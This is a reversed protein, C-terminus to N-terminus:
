KNATKPILKIIGDILIKYAITKTDWFCTIMELVDKGIFHWCARLVELTIGNSDSSHDVRMLKFTGELEEMDPMAGLYDRDAELLKDLMHAM